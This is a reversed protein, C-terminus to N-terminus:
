RTINMPWKHAMTYQRTVPWAPCARVVDARIMREAMEPYKRVDGRFWWQGEFRVAELDKVEMEALVIRQAETLNPM